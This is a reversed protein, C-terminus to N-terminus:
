EYYFGGTLYNRVSDIEPLTAGSLAVDGSATEIYGSLASITRKANLPLGQTAADVNSINNFMQYLYKASRIGAISGRSGLTSVTPTVADAASGIFAAAALPNGGTAIMAAVGGAASLISGVDISGQMMPIPVGYQTSVDALVNNNATVTLRGEGTFADLMLDCTISSAGVLKSSDLEILGFPPYEIWYKSYPALNLYQGISSASPHKSISYSSSVSGTGSTDVVYASCNCTYPGFQISSVAGASLFGNPFWHCGTIYQLPNAIGTIVSDIINGFDYGDLLSFLSLLLAKFNAPTFCYAISGGGTSSLATVVYYGSSSNFPELQTRTASYGAEVLRMNDVLSGNSESAARLVMLSAGGIDTKYSALVDCTLSVIWLGSDFVINSVYYYRKFSAIYAYNFATPDSRLEIVPNIISAPSKVLCKRVAGSDTPQKTSNIRKNFTYFNVNIM